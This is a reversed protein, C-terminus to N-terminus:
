FIDSSSTMSGSPISELSSLLCTSSSTFRLSPAKACSELAGDCVWAISTCRGRLPRLIHVPVRPMPIHAPIHHRGREADAQHWLFLLRPLLNARRDIRGNEILYHLAAAERTSLEYGPLRTAGPPYKRSTEPARPNYHRARWRPASWFRWCNQIKHAAINQVSGNEKGKAPSYELPTNIFLQELSDLPRGSAGQYELPAKRPKHIPHQREHPAGTTQKRILNEARPTPFTVVM